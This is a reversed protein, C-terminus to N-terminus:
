HRKVNWITASYNHVPDCFFVERFRHEVVAQQAQEISRNWEPELFIRDLFCQIVLITDPPYDITDKARIREVIKQVLDDKPESNRYVYPRSSITKTKRDFSIGKVGFTPVGENLAKRLLHDNEHVISTVEILQRKPIM